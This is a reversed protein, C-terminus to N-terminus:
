PTAAPSRGAVARVITRVAQVQRAEAMAKFPPLHVFGCPGETLALGLYFVHNCLFTGAHYSVTTRIGAAHLRRRIRNLPLRTELAVPSGKLIPKRWRYNDGKEEHHDVNLAVAELAPRTRTSALGLLILADPRQKRLARRLARGAEAFDVPLQIGGLALAVVGSPNVDHRDWPAFGTVLIKV